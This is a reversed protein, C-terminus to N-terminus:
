FTRQANSSLSGKGAAKGCNSGPTSDCEDGIGDNDVDSQDPNPILPCNDDDDLIGDGDTDVGEWTKTVETSCVQQNQSNTFCAKIRDTGVGGSGIYTFSTQGSGNTNSSGAAGANPGSVVSFDIQRNAIPQGNSNQVTATVTHPTGVPNTDTAPTLVIGEGVVATNAGVM